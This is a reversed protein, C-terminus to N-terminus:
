FSPGCKEKKEEQEDDEEKEKKLSLSKAKSFVTLQKNMHMIVWKLYELCKITVVYNYHIAVLVSHVQANIGTM